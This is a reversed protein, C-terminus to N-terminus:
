PEKIQRAKAKVIGDKSTTLLYFLRTRSQRCPSTHSQRSRLIDRHSNDAQAKKKTAGDTNTHRLLRTFLLFSCTAVRRNSSSFRIFASHVIYWKNRHLQLLLPVCSCWCVSSSELPIEKFPKSTKVLRIPRSLQWTGRRGWAARQICRGVRRGKGTRIPSIASRSRKSNRIPIHIRQHRRQLHLVAPGLHISPNGSAYVRTRRRVVVKRQRIVDKGITDLQVLCHHIHLPQRIGHLLSMKVPAIM